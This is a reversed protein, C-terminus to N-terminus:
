EQGFVLALGFKEPTTSYTNADFETTLRVAVDPNRLKHEVMTTVTGANDAKAKVLVSQDVQYEGGAVLGREGSSFNYTFKGGLTLRPSANHYYSIAVDDARNSTRATVTFDTQAYEAAANYDTVNQDSVDYVVQGGVSIGDFGVVAAATVSTSKGSADVALTTAISDKAYTFEATGKPQEDGSLKVKLGGGHLRDTEWSYVTSGETSLTSEFLGYDGDRYKGKVSGGLGSAQQFGKTEVEIGNRAVSKLALSRDFSYKKSLLDKAAKGHNAFTPPLFNNSM